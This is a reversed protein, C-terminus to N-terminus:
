GIVEMKCWATGPGASNDVPDVARVIEGPVEAGGATVDFTGDANCVLRSSRAANAGNKILGWFVDGAILTVARVTDGIAYQTTTTRGILGDEIAITVQVRTANGTNPKYLDNVDVELIHGPMCAVSAKREEYKRGIAGKPKLIITNPTAV